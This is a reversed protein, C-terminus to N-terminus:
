RCLPKAFVEEASLKGAVYKRIKGRCKLSNRMKDGFKWSAEAEEASVSFLNESEMCDRIMLAYESLEGGPMNLFDVCLEASDRFNIVIQKKKEAMCKGTVFRFETGKWKPIGLFLRGCVLTEKEFDLYQMCDACSGLNDFAGTLEDAAKKRDNKDSIAALMMRFIHNQAVDIIAGTERYFELREEIGVTEAIVFDIREIYHSNWVNAYVKKLRAVEAMGPKALYHDIRYIQEPKFHENLFANLSLTDVLSVGYPKELMLKVKSQDILSCNIIKEIAIKFLAPRVSLYFIVDTDSGIQKAIQNFDDTLVNVQTYGDPILTGETIEKVMNKYTEASILDAAAGQLKFGKDMYGKASLEALAPYLKLKALNGTAGILILTTGTVIIGEKREFM